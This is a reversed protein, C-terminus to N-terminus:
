CGALRRLWPPLHSSTGNLVVAPQVPLHATAERIRGLPTVGSRVVLLLDTFAGAPARGLGSGLLPPLDAIVVDFREGLARLAESRLIAAMTRAVPAFSSGATVLAIGGGLQQLVDDVAARGEALEAMGPCPAAGLWGGLSPRELDLDVLVVSREYDESQIHALARVLTSRGEGRVSSTVGLSALRPGGLQLSAFRCAEILEPPLAPLQAM